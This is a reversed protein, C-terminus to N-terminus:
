PNLNGQVTSLRRYLGDLKMLEKHTGTERISKDELVVIKDANRITSFRHAIILTIDSIKGYELSCLLSSGMFCFAM